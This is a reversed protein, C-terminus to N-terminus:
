HQELRKKNKVSKECFWGTVYSYEIWCFNMVAVGQFIVHLFTHGLQAEM